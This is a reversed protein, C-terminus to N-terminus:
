EGRCASTMAEWRALKVREGRDLSEGLAIEAADLKLWDDYTVVRLGRSELLEEITHKPATETGALDDLLNRVTEAADSKNTGVVGTPGRKIWGAVYERPVPAGDPGTIRGGENPVVFSREDFPVGELPVSQYGVSRLVMGVPLTEFEGTGTVRGSEDLRTRELRLGEVRDTGLIEAPARWFRVDIHRPRGAAPEGTWGNLVKINGRVHRDNEALEASAPDLDMDAPDVHITANPLEGLERAEKTTFKAQAPGRRGIMHVRRVRSRSLAEIVQEPVDTERLEGATKALIRVVDVAVNGVGIVAVEEVSLDFEHDAADPHGCYWNVFDTAAISGPLDEGPIRMHRDVMAGTSYIVADYCDLLDARTLDRGLEVCGFFRVGPNELVRQLYRAISKISKHDPAVGYRVLGYPTPLRDFVDVRVDGDTQKVLAEAAYIGAPGSGIVAVRAPSAMRTM